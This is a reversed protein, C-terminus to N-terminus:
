LAGEIHKYVRHLFEAEMLTDDLAVHPIAERGLCDSVVVRLEEHVADLEDKIYFMSEFIRMCLEQRFSWPFANPKELYFNCFNALIPYDFNAGKCYVNFGKIGHTQYPKLAFEVRSILEMLAKKNNSIANCKNLRETYIHEPLQEITWDQTGLDFGFGHEIQEDTNFNQDICFQVEGTELDIMTLALESIAANSKTSLTEIDLVLAHKKLKFQM